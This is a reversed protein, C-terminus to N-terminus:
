DEGGADSRRAGVISAVGIIIFTLGGFMLGWTETAIGVVVMGAGIVIFAALGGEKVKGAM